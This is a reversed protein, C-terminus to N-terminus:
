GAVGTAVVISVLAVVLLGALFLGMIAETWRSGTVTPPRRTSM